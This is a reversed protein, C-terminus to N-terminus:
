LNKRGCVIKYSKSEGDAKGVTVIQVGTGTKAKLQLAADGQVKDVLLGSLDRVEVSRLNAIASKVVVYRGEQMICIGDLVNDLTDDKLGAKRVVFRGLSSEAGAIVVKEGLQHDIGTLRDHLVYSEADVGTTPTVEICISDKGSLCIGLPTTEAMPMIDYAGAQGIGFVKVDPKVEGDMMTKVAAADEDTDETLMLLSASKSGTLISEVSVRLAQPKEANGTGEGTNGNGTNEDKKDEPKEIEAMKVPAGIM